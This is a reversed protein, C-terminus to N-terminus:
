RRSGGYLFTAGAGGILVSRGNGGVILDNGDGADVTTPLTVGAAINIVDNGGGTRVQLATISGPAFLIPAGSGFQVSINGGSMSITVNDAALSNGVVVLQDGIVQATPVAAAATVIVEIVNTIAQGGDYDHMEAM